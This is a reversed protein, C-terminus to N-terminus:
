RISWFQSIAEGLVGDHKARWLAERGDRTILYVEIGEYDVIDIWGKDRLRVATMPHMWCFPTIMAAELAGYDMLEQRRRLKELFRRVLGIM